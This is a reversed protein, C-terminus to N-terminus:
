EGLQCVKDEPLKMKHVEGDEFGVMVGAEDGLGLLRTPRQELRSVRIPCIADPIMRKSSLFLPRPPQIAWLCNILQAAGNDTKAKQVGGIVLKPVDHNEIGFGDDGGYAFEVPTLASGDPISVMGHIRVERAYDGLYVTYKDKENAKNSEDDGNMGAAAMLRQQQEGPKMKTSTTTFFAVQKDALLAAWCLSPPTDSRMEMATMKGQM